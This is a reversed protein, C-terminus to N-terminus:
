PRAIQQVEYVIPLMVDLADQASAVGITAAQDTATRPLRRSIVHLNPQFAGVYKALMEGAAKAMVYEAVNPAKEDILGTSPYFIGIQGAGNRALAACLNYFGDVYYNLFGRLKEPEYRGSRRQLIRATAFYYCCGVAGIGDLQGAVPELADYRIIECQGGAQMIDAAIAEAERKGERYTIVPHGGGAALIKATVEGLGRSGGVILARQGSFAGKRVRATIEKMAPQTPPPQRAFAELRGAIGSGTVDIKLSRFRADSKSVAYALARAPEAAPDCTIDLGAFLSHLGPCAMGVIQSTALLGRVASAGIADSLAPFLAEIEHDTAGAEVTGQGEALREFSADVAKAIPQPALAIGRASSGMLKGSESSLRIAAVATSDAVVEIAVVTETRSVVKVAAIEGPFLPQHFRVRINEIDFASSRLVADVAWLLTHIGHVVPAGMQTRRAFDTDLHMPNWDLSLRAFALQDDATFTRTALPEDTM